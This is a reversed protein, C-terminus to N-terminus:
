QEGDGKQVWTEAFVRLLNAGLIKKVRAENYGRELLLGIV